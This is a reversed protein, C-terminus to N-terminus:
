GGFYTRASVSQEFHWYAWNKVGLLTHMHVMDRDRNYIDVVAYFPCPFRHQYHKVIKLQM